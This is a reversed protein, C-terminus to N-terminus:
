TTQEVGTEQSKVVQYVGKILFLYLTTAVIMNGLFPLAAIYSALLGSFDKPYLTGSLWVQFNTILFFLVASFVSQGIMNTKSSINLFRRGILVILLFALYVATFGGYFFTFGEFYQPYLINNVILDSLFLALLPVTFASWRNKLMAGGFLAIAGIATFNPAHPILRTLAGVIILSVILIQNKSLSKM